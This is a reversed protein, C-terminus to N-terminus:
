SFRLASAPGQGRKGGSPAAGAGGGAGVLWQAAGEKARILRRRYVSRIFPWYRSIWESFNAVRDSAMRQSCHSFKPTPRAQISAYNSRAPGGSVPPRSFPVPGNEPRGRPRIPRGVGFRPFCDDKAACQRVRPGLTAGPSEPAESRAQSRDQFAATLSRSVSQDHPGLRDGRDHDDYSDILAEVPVPGSRPCSSTRPPLTILM